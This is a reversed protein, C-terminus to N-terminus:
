LYIFTVLVQYPLWFSMSCFFNFFVFIFILWRFNSYREIHNPVFVTSTKGLPRPLFKDNGFITKSTNVNKTEAHWRHTTGQKTTITYRWPQNYLQPLGSSSNLHPAQWHEIAVGSEKTEGFSERSGLLTTRLIRKNHRTYWRHISFYPMNQFLMSLERQFVDASIKLWMPMKNYVYKGRPLIIVLCKRIDERVNMGYYSMIIDLATAYTMDGCQHLMDHIIPM